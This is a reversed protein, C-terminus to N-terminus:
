AKMSCLFIHAIQECGCWCAVVGRWQILEVIVEWAIIRNRNRHCSQSLFCIEVSLAIRHEWLALDPMIVLLKSRSPDPPLVLPSSRLLVACIMLSLLMLLPHAHQVKSTAHLLTAVTLPTWRCICLALAPTRAQPKSNARM